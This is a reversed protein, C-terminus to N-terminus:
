MTSNEKNGSTSTNDKCTTKGPSGKGRGEGRRGEICKRECRGPRPIRLPLSTSGSKEAQKGAGNGRWKSNGVRNNCKKGEQNIPLHRRLPVVRFRLSEKNHFLIFANLVLIRSYYIIKLVGSGKSDEDSTSKKVRLRLSWKSSICIWFPFDLGFRRISPFHVCFSLHHYKYKIYNRRFPKNIKEGTTIRSFVDRQKGKRKVKIPFSFASLSVRLMM